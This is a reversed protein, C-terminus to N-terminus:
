LSGKQEEGEISKKSGIHEEENIEFSNQLMEAAKTSEALMQPTAFSQAMANMSEYAKGVYNLVDVAGSKYVSMLKLIEQVKANFGIVVDKFAQSKVINEVLNGVLAAFSGLIDVVSYETCNEKRLGEVANTLNRNVSNLKRNITTYEEISITKQHAVKNRTNHVDDIKVVWSEQSGFKKFHREWLSTPRMKEIIACIEEKELGELCKTSLQERIINSYDVHRQEFLYKELTDLDMNELTENLSVNGHANKQLASLMEKSVTETRWNSGYAKTLIFLVLSRLKREFEAYKPYLRKCFSESIGDYDRISHYYEQQHSNFLASDVKQLAPISTTVRKNSTMELFCRKSNRKQIIRYRIDVDDIKLVEDDRTEVTNDIIGLLIEQITKSEHKKKEIFIYSMKIEAM